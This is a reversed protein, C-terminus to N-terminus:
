ILGIEIYPDKVWPSFRILVFGEVLHVILVLFLLLPQVVASDLVNFMSSESRKNERGGSSHGFFAILKHFFKTLSQAELGLLCVRVSDAIYPSPKPKYEQLGGKDGDSSM